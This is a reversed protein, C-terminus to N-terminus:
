YPPNQGHGQGQGPNYYDHSEGGPRYPQPTYGQGQGQDQHHPPGGPPPPPYHQGGHQQAPTSDLEAAPPRYPQYQHSSGTSHQEQNPPPPYTSTPQQHHQPGPGQSPPRYAQDQLQYLNQTPHSSLPSPSPPKYSQQHQSPAPSQSSYNQPPPPPYNQTPPPAPPYTSQPPPTCLPQLPPPVHSSGGQQPPPAYSTQPPPVHSPAQQPPAYSTQLPPQVSSSGGQQPPPAFSTQPPKQQGAAPITQHGGGLQINNTPAGVSVGENGIDDPVTIKVRPLYKQVKQEVMNQVFVWSQREFKRHGGNVVGLINERLMEQVKKILNRIKSLLTTKIDGFGRDTTTERDLQSDFPNGGLIKELPKQFKDPLLEFLKKEIEALIKRFELRVERHVRALGTSLKESLMKSFGIGGKEEGGPGARDSDGGLGRSTGEDHHKKGFLGGLGKVLGKVQDEIEGRAGDGLDRTTTNGRLWKKIHELAIKTFREAIPKHQERMEAAVKEKIEPTIMRAKEEPNKAADKVTNSIVGLLGDLEFKQGGKKDFQDQVVDVAATLFTKFGDSKGGSGGRDRTNTNSQGGSGETLDFIDRLDDSAGSALGTFSRTLKSIEDAFPLSQNGYSDPVGSDLGRKGSGDDDKNFLSRFADVIQDELSDITKTQFTELEAEVRPQIQPALSDVYEDVKKMLVEPLHHGSM